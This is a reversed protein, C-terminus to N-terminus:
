WKYIVHFFYGSLQHGNDKHMNKANNRDNIVSKKNGCLDNGMCCVLLFNAEVITFPLGIFNNPSNGKYLKFSYRFRIDYTQIPRRVIM